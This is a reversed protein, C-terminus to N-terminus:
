FLLPHNWLATTLVAAKCASPVPNLSWHLWPGSGRGLVLGQTHEALRHSSVGWRRLSGTRLPLSAVDSPWPHFHQAPHPPPCFFIIFLFSLQFIFPRLMWSLFNAFASSCVWAHAMSFIIYPLFYTCYLILYHYLIVCHFALEKFINIISREWSM